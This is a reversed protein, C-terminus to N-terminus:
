YHLMPGRGKGIDLGKELNKTVYEKAAAVADALSEGKALGAAIASSLTCGTGHSNPNEIRENDFIQIHNHEVLVDTCAGSMHGGKVLVAKAGSELLKEGAEIMDDITEIKMGTLEQAEPINPTIIRAKPFLYECMAESIDNESLSHGSTSVMVPDLVVNQAGYFAVSDAVTRVIEANALMGIKVSAPRIDEFVADIQARVFEPPVTHVARVGTTNQATLATIVSMAYVGMVTMTKIDAQIGAGGITDSGAITLATPINTIKEM